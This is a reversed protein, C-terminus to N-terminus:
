DVKQFVMPLVPLKACTLLFNISASRKTEMKTSHLSYKKVSHKQWHKILEEWFTLSNILTLLELEKKIQNHSCISSIMYKGKKYIKFWGKMYSKSSKKDSRKNNSNNTWKNIKLFNKHWEEIPEEWPFILNNWLMKLNVLKFSIIQM